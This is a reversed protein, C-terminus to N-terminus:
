SGYTKTGHAARITSDRPMSVESNFHSLGLDGLKFQWEYPCRAGNSVILINEPKIDQHWRCIEEAIHFLNGFCLM